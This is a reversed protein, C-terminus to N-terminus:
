QATGSLGEGNVSLSAAITTSSQSLLALGNTGTINVTVGSGINISSFDFLGVYPIGNTAGEAMGNQNNIYGTYSASGFSLTPATTSTGTNINLTGSTVNLTGLSGFLYPNFLVTGDISGLAASATLTTAALAAAMSLGRYCYTSM